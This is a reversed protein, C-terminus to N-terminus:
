YLKEGLWAGFKLGSEFGDEQLIVGICAGLIMNNLSEKNEFDNIKLVEACLRGVKRFNSKSEENTIKLLENWLNEDIFLNFDIQTELYFQKKLLIQLKMFKSKNMIMMDLSINFNTCLKILTDFTPNASATEITSLIPRTVGTKETLKEHSINLAQRLLFLNRAIDLKYESNNNTIIITGIIKLFLTVFKYIIINISM